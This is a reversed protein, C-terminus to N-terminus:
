FLCNSFLFVLRVMRYLKFSHCCCCGAEPFGGDSHLIYMSVSQSAHAFHLWRVIALCCKIVRSNWVCACMMYQISDGEGQRLPLVVAVLWFLLRVSFQIRCFFFFDVVLRSIHLFLSVVIRLGFVLFWLLLFMNYPQHVDSWIWCYVFFIFIYEKYKEM